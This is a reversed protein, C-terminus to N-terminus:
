RAMCRVSRGYNRYLNGAPWVGTSNFSLYYAYISNNVTSSWYLGNSGSGDLYSGNVYGSRVFYLPSTRMKNFGDTSYVDNGSTTATAIIDSSALLKGFERNTSGSNDGVPLRWNKPCISNDANTYNSSIGNSANSAIAATWNYYNGVHYYVCDSHDRECDTLSTYKTDAGTTDSTYFYTDGGEASYPENYDNTWGSVPPNGGANFNISRGSTVATSDPTWTYVGDSVGYGDAYIGKGSATTSIDTNESTLALTGAGGIDLDLNQTMWCNDDALKAVWYLSGDRVDVLQSGSYKGRKTVADCITGSMDQMTFYEGVLSYGSPIEENPDTLVKKLTGNSVLRAKDRQAAGYATAITTLGESNFPHMLTYKVQGTYTGAPQMSTVYAQYTTDIYSGSVDLATADSATNSERFAIKTLQSPVSTYNRYSDVVYPLTTGSSATSIKMAWNSTDGSMATGTAIDFTSSISSVLKNNGDTNAGYGIAYIDYGNLDNCYAGMRTKGIGTASQGSNITAEHESSATEDIKITCSDPITITVSDTNRGDARVVPTALIAGALVAVSVLVGIVLVGKKIGRKM